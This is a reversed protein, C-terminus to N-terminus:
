RLKELLAPVVDFLDETTGYHAHEFIPATADTNVAVILGADKMGEIHEPAGSVGLALYVKPAVRLGSKGVQRTKPLWKNDVIPRSSCVAGGLATALEQAMPLNDESEIGRGVCVLVTEQTIDVDGAPPKIQELWQLRCSALAAPAAVAVVEPSGDVRGAAAPNAGALVSLVCDGEVASEVLLKGGYLQSTAVLLDGELRADQAYAILPRQLRVALAAALDMGMSTTSTLVTRAPHETLVQVLAAVCAEPHFGRLSAHDVSLVRDAGGLHSAAQDMGSGLLAVELKGGAASALARGLGLLEFTVEALVGDLHEAVVLVNSASM